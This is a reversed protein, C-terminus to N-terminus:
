QVGRTGHDLQIMRFKEIEAPRHEQRFIAEVQKVVEHKQEAVERTEKIDTDMDYLRIAMNGEVIAARRAKWSGIRLAQQGGCSPFEWYLFEHDTQKEQGLLTPLFSIGDTEA